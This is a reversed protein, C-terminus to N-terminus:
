EYSPPIEWFDIIYKALERFLPVASYAATKVGRPNDLKILILVRPKLAPLFGVFSHITKDKFYGGGGKLPVQATGTKGAIFYGGIKAKRGSGNEVVSILMATLKAATTESIVKERVQPQIEITQGDGQVIKEVM